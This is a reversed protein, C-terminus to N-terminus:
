PGSISLYDPSIADELWFCIINYADNGKADTFIIPIINVISRISLSPRLVRISTQKGNQTIPIIPIETPVIRVKLCSQSSRPIM